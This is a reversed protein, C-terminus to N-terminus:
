RADGREAAIAEALELEAPKTHERQGPDPILGKLFAVRKIFESVGQLSLLTFGVPILLKVPWLILGGANASIEGSRLSQFFYPWSLYVMLLAMPMLFAAIGFLDICIQTRRSFRHYVVDIRVHEQKLLTYAGCLLFLASFMYWQLELFANSSLDFAKRTVANGASVLVAGLVMWGALRGIHDNLTDIRRSWALWARM